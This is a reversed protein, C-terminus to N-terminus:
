EFIRGAKALFHRCLLAPPMRLWHARLYLLILSARTPVDSRAHLSSALGRSWVGDMLRGLAANPAANEAAAALASDPVPTALLRNAYRLGYHLPRALDLDTARAILRPWFDREVSGRRLLLDLDSLDRLGHSLEENHFLHTVNHLILDLPALVYLAPEGAIPQASELLKRSDPKLRATVPLVAHHVDLVTQRSVHQLPPLEHMWERYYRQDYADPHTTMWGHQMLASEVEALRNKPVLIDIDSFLRGAAAAMDAVVYAAGKLLVVRVDLPRLAEIVHGVERRVEDHQAQALYRAALLQAYPAAPVQGSIGHAEVLCAIRALLDARRTAHVLQEWAPLSLNPLAAPDRLADAVLALPSPTM